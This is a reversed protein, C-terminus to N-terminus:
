IGTIKVHLNQNGSFEEFSKWTDPQGTWSLGGPIQALTAVLNIPSHHNFVLEGGADPPLIGICSSGAQEQCIAAHFRSMGEVSTEM